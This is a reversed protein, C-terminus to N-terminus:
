KKLIIEIIQHKKKHEIDLLKSVDINEKHNKVANVYSENAQKHSLSTQHKNFKRIAMAWNDFGNKTFADDCKGRSYDLRCVFCYAKKTMESFELWKYINYWQLCFHRHNTTPFNTVPQYSGLLLFEKAAEPGRGPDRKFSNPQSCYASSENTDTTKKTTTIFGNEEPNLNETDQNSSEFGAPTSSSLPTSSTNDFESLPIIENGNNIDTNTTSIHHVDFTERSSTSKTTFYYILTNKDSM